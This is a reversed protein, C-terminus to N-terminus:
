RVGLYALLLDKPLQHAKLFQECEHIGYPMVHYREDPRSSIDAFEDLVAWSIEDILDTWNQVATIDLRVIGSLTNLSTSYSAPPQVRLYWSVMPRQVQDLTADQEAEWATRPLFAVSREGLPLTTLQQEGQRGFFPVPHTKVCCVIRQLPSCQQLYEQRFQALSGDKLLWHDPFTHVEQLTHAAQLSLTQESLDLLQRARRVGRHIWAHNRLHEGTPTLPEDTERDRLNVCLDSHMHFLGHREYATRISPLFLSFPTLLLNQAHYLRNMLQHYGTREDRTRVASAFQTYLVPYTEEYGILYTSRIGDCFAHIRFTAQRKALPRLAFPDHLRPELVLGQIFGPDADEPPVFEEQSVVLPQVTLATDGQAKRQEAFRRLRQLINDGAMIPPPQHV